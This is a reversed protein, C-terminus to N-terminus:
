SADPQKDDWLAIVNGDPDAVMAMVGFGANTPEKVFRVGAEHLQGAKHLLGDVHFTLGTERGIMARANPHNAPHIGIHPPEDLLEAGFSGQRFVTLGLQDRYFTLARDVDSVFIAISYLRPTPTQTM